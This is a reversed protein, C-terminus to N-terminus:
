EKAISKAKEKLAQLNGKLKALKNELEELSQMTNQKANTEKM